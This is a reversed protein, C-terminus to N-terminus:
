GRGYYCGDFNEVPRIQIELDGAEPPQVTTVERYRQGNKVGISFQCSANGGIQFFPVSVVEGDHEVSACGPPLIRGNNYWRQFPLIEERLIKMDTESDGRYRDPVEHPLLPMSWLTVKLDQKIKMLLFGLCDLVETESRGVVERLWAHVEEMPVEHECFVHAELRERYWDQLERSHAISLRQRDEVTAHEEVSYWFCELAREANEGVEGGRVLIEQAVFVNEFKKSSM